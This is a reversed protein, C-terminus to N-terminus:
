VCISSFQSISCLPCAADLGPLDWLPLIMLVRGALTRPCRLRPFPRHCLPPGPTLLSPPFEKMTERYFSIAGLSVCAGMRLGFCGAALCKAGRRWHLHLPNKEERFLGWLSGPCLCSRGQPAPTESLDTQLRIDSPGRPPFCARKGGRFLFSNALM